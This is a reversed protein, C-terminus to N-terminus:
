LVVQPRTPQDDLVERVAATPLGSAEATSLAGYAISDVLVVEPRVSAIADALDPGDYRGRAILDTQGHHLRANDSDARYDTVPIDVVDDSVPSAELGAARVTDLLDPATRLHVHHGRRQLELLGPVLPFVHGAAPSTYILFRTM